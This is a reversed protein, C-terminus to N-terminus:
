NKWQKMRTLARVTEVLFVVILISFGAAFALLREAFFLIIFLFIALILVFRLAYLVIGTRVAKKKEPLLFKYLSRKLWAFSFASFAGGAFFFLATPLDFILLAGLALLASALLIELPIRRLFKEEDM